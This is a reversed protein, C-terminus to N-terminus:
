GTSTREENRLKDMLAVAEDETRGAGRVPLVSRVDERRLDPRREFRARERAGEVGQAGAVAQAPDAQVVQPV